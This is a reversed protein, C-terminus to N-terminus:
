VICKAQFVCNVQLSHPVYIILMIIIWCTLFFVSSKSVCTSDKGNINIIVELRKRASSLIANSHLAAFCDCAHCHKLWLM